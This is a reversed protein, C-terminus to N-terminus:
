SRKLLDVICGLMFSILGFIIVVTFFWDFMQNGTIALPTITDDISWVSVALLWGM